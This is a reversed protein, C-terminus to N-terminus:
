IDGITKIGIVNKLYLAYLKIALKASSNPDRLGLTANLALADVYSYELYRMTYGAIVAGTRDLGAECHVYIIRPTDGSKSVQIRLDTIVQDVLKGVKGTVIGRTFLADVDHHIIKGLYQNKSFFKKEINFDVKEKPNLKTLLNFDVFYNLDPLVSPAVLAKNVPTERSSESVMSDLVNVLAFQKKYLPINGRYLLNNGVQDIFKTKEQSLSRNGGLEQTVLTYHHHTSEKAGITGCSLAMMVFLVISICKINCSTM